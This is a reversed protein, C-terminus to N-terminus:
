PNVPRYDDYVVVGDFKIIYKMSELDDIICRDKSWKDMFPFIDAPTLDPEDSQVRKCHKQYGKVKGKAQFELDIVPM